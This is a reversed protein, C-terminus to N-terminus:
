LSGLAQKKVKLFSEMQGNQKQKTYSIGYNWMMDGKIPM